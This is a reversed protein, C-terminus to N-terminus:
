IGSTRDPPRPSTQTPPAFARLNWIKAPACTQKTHRTIPPSPFLPKTVWYPAPGTQILHEIKGPSITELAQIFLARETEQQRTNLQLYFKEYPSTQQPSFAPDTAIRDVMLAYIWLCSAPAPHYGTKLSALPLISFLFDAKDRALLLTSNLTSQTAPTNQAPSHTGAIPPQIIDLEWAALYRTVYKRM